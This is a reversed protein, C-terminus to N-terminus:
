ANTDFTKVNALANTNISKINSKINTNYSKKMGRGAFTETLKHCPVCLTRGNDSGADEIIVLNGFRKGQLNNTKM